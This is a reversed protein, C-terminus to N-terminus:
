LVARESRCQCIDCICKCVDYIKYLMTDYVCLARVDRLVSKMWIEGINKWQKACLDCLGDAVIHWEM